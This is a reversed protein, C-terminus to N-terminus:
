PGRATRAAGPAAATESLADRLDDVLMAIRDAHTRFCLVCVRLVFISRGEEEVTAGTLFVRQRQNARALWRRNFADLAEGDLGAPEARFAFLSLVPEAVVRVGPLARVGAAALRALDLKEDLAARFTAFGHMRVPLWVRLGRFDRSLEPGLDAFDWAEPEERPPPLYASTVAHAARLDDLRRVLLAGTGYPLFLGKHPDLAVSDARALGVLATRGRETLAFFGGYAADVHLWAGHAACVDAVADLPDVAGVATSGGTAVVAVPVRGDDRAARLARDLAAPDMRFAGDTPVRVLNRDDLGAVFAAKRVSHHTQETVAVVAERLDDLGSRRRAAVLAGLNALSGGTVLVGGAEPGYGTLACFWRIVDVELQVFGPAPMWLGTFRNVLDAYLDAIASHPLGGGPVYALYGPSTTQLSTRLARDLVPLLRRWRTGTEPWESRVSRAVRRSGDLRSLPEDPMRDLWPLVRDLVDRAMARVTPGDLELARPDPAM